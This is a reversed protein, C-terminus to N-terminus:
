WQLCFLFSCFMLFRFRTMSFAFIGFFSRRVHAATLAIDGHILTGGCGEWFVFFPYDDSRAATGGVIRVDVDQGKAILIIVSFLAVLCTSGSFTM